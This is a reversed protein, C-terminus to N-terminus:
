TRKKEGRVPRINASRTSFASSALVQSLRVAIQRDSATADSIASIFHRLVTVACRGVVAARNDTIAFSSSVPVGGAAFVKGALPGPDITSDLGSDATSLVLAGTSCLVAGFSSSPFGCSIAMLSASWVPSDELSGDLSGDSFTNGCMEPCVETGADLLIGPVASVTTSVFFSDSDDSIRLEAAASDAARAAADVAVSVAPRCRM